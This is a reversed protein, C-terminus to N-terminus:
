AIKGLHRVRFHLTSKKVKAKPFSSWPSSARLSVQSKFKLGKVEKGEVKLYNKHPAERSHSPGM